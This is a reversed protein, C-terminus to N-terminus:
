RAGQPSAPRRIPPETEHPLVEQLMLHRRRSTEYVPVRSLLAALFAATALVWGMLLWGTTQDLRSMVLGLWGVSVAGLYILSVSVPVSLGIMVMRHSTHDRGGLFPSRRHILRNVTVLATDFLAVGLVLIPVFLTVQVPGDFRLRIGVVALMFGLFLAGADGMYIRAPHFNSRLFGIACGCLAIALTAVLFQGNVAAIVFFFAAAIAAVGASLGDMNDLLNFANTVAVVWVVTIALDLPDSWFLHTRTAGAWLAVGAGGEVALRLWPSLGRLDDVLGLVALLLGLGLILALEDLGAVPPRLLAASMVVGVFAIVIAAGGLYPVPSAQSKITSPADVLQRRLALRLALPTLLLSLVLTGAFVAGYEWPRLEEM